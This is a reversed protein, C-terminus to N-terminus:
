VGLFVILDVLCVFVNECFALELNSGDKDFLETKGKTTM